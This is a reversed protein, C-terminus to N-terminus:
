SKWNSFISVTSPDRKGGYFLRLGESFSAGGGALDFLTLSSRFKLDDPSGFIEHATRSSHQMVTETCELLRVGLIPHALYAEAEARSKIAYHQAMPSAGLGAVQPFIFWIWHTRKRGQTLESLVSQYLPQQADVFRQLDFGDSRPVSLRTM